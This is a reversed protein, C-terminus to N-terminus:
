QPIQKLFLETKEFQQYDITIAKVPINDKIWKTRRFDYDDPEIIAWCRSRVWDIGPAKKKITLQKSLFLYQYTYPIVPPTYIKVCFDNLSEHAIIYDVIKAQAQLGGQIITSSRFESYIKQGMILYTGILLLTMIYQMNKIKPILSFISLFVFIFLLSLGEFYYGWFMDKYVLSFLFLLTTLSIFYLPLVISKNKLWPKKQRFFLILGILLLLVVTIEITKNDFIKNFYDLFLLLRENIIQPFPRPQYLHPNTFQQILIRTQLFHNKIEFLLRPLFPIILGLSYITFSKKDSIKKRFQPFAFSTILFTPILFMGFALEFEAILGASLSSLFILRNQKKNDKKTFLSFTVILFITLLPPVVFNNGVFTAIYIFYASVALLNAIILAVVSGFHKRVFIILAIYSVLHIFFLFYSFNIPDSGLLIFPIALLYYWWAGHFLGNVGTTPGIFPIKKDLIIESAKLFDRGQDYTFPITQLQIPKVRCYTFIAISLAFLIFFSYRTLLKM